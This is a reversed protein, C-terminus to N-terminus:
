GCALWRLRRPSIPNFRPYEGSWEAGSAIGWPSADDRPDPASSRSQANTGGAAPLVITKRAGEITARAEQAARRAEEAAARAEQAAKRTEEIAAALRQATVRDLSSYTEGSTADFEQKPGYAYRGAQVQEWTREISAGLKVEITKGTDAALAGACLATLATALACLVMNRIGVTNTTRMDTKM